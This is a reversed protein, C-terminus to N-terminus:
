RLSAPRPPVPENKYANHRAAGHGSEGHAKRCAVSFASQTFLGKACLHWSRSVTISSNGALTLPRRHAM